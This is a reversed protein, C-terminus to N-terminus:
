ARRRARYVTRASCGVAEAVEERDLEPLAAIQVERLRAVGHGGSIYICDGLPCKFCCSVVVCGCGVHCSM